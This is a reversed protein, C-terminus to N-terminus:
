YIYEVPTKVCRITRTKTNNHAVFKLWNQGPRDSSAYGELGWSRGSSGYTALLINKRAVDGAATSWQHGLGFLVWRNGDSEFEYFSVTGYDQGLFEAQREAITVTIM